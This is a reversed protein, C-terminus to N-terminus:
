NLNLNKETEGIYKSVTLPKVAKLTKAKRLKSTPSKKQKPAM